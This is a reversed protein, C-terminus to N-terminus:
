PMTALPRVYPVSGTLLNLKHLMDNQNSAVQSLANTIERMKSGTASLVEVSKSEQLRLEQNIKELRQQAKENAETLDKIQREYQERMQRQMAEAHGNDIALEQAWDTRATALAAQIAAGQGGVLALQAAVAAEARRWQWITIGSLAVILLWLLATFANEAAHHGVVGAAETAVKTAEAAQLLLCHPM